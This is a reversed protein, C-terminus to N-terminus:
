QEGYLQQDVNFQVNEGDFEFEDPDKNTEDHRDNIKRKTISDDFMSPQKLFPRIQSISYRKMIGNQDIDVIKSREYHDFVTFPAIFEGIHNNM